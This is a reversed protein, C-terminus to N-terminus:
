RRDWPNVLSVGTEALDGVNRTVVTVEFRTAIAAIQMDGASRPRGARDGDGMIRGWVAAAEQDFPLIRGAFQQLLDEDIWKRLRDRRKGDPLRVAGRVLEGLTVASLFLEVPSHRTIWDVVRPEPVPKVLESVVNTDLLFGAVIM